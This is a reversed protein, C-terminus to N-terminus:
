GAPLELLQGLADVDDACHLWAPDPDDPMLPGFPYQSRYRADFVLWCPSAPYSYTSPDFRQMGRGVDAYNQAEDVFRRGTRDVLIAGPQGRETHLPRYHQVGDRDVDGRAVTHLYTLAQTADDRVSDDFPHGPAWVVGGSLATTGGVSAA